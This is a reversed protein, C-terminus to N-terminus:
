RSKALEAATKSFFEVCKAVNSVLEAGSGSEYEISFVGKFGQRKLETLMGKADCVGTGWPVDQKNENLDKFHLSIIRGRLKRLSEVPNLGSRYWHGVDACAGVRKSRGECVKLVTDPNWYHSPRPHNHIAINIKYEQALRDLMPIAEEPAELTITELNLKKAFDFVARASGEDNGMGVVGYCVPTVKASKLKQLLGNILEPSASHTFPVPNEKSYRQGPFLEIYRIGLNALTDITEFLTMERFTYAQCALKWGLKQMSAYDIKPASTVALTSAGGLPAQPIQAEALGTAVLLLVAALICLIIRM